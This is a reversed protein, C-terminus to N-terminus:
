EWELEKYSAIVNRGHNPDALLWDQDPPLPLAEVAEGLPVNRALLRRIESRLWELYRREASLAEPWPASPPGHGPVVRSAEIKLLEDLVEIWGNLSGDVVPIREMFLLDGAFLTGTELDQVTLDTDTHATPWAQLRLIRGGLDIDQPQGIEVLRTPPVIRTGTFAHGLLRRMADLYFPGREAMARELRRHGVFEADEFAANGLGGGAFAANGLVHDPHLHTNVVFAVPLDTRARIAALLARGEALSGGTDVVAVAKEGIVFGLNAIGGRNAESFDEHLGKHVFVGDAVEEIPLPKVAPNAAGALGRRPLFLAPPSLLVAGLFTALARRRTPRRLSPTM